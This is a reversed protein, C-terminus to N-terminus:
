RKVIDLKVGAALEDLRALEEQGLAVRAAGANEKAQKANRAGVLAATIGPQRLTWAVVVQAVTAQHGSAIPRIEDLMANVRRINAPKFYQSTARNDGEAYTHHETFKGTLLGRQLPSYVLVGLHHERCFPLVDAEINRRVMSYPGQYAALPVTQMAEATEEVSFNSVGAARIKGDKLLRDIAEMTEGVPTTNDRWHCQYLDITDIKLRRLSQECEAIVDDKRANRYIKIPKGTNDPPEFFFEGAQKTWQMGYKTLIQVQERKRGQIVRGILEESVGFGYVPATDISTVGEAIATEIAAIADSEDQQGWMWGGIAWAGFVVPSVKVDSTGLTRYEMFEHEKHRFREAFPRAM